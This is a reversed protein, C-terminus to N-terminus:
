PEGSVFDWDRLQSIVRKVTAPCVKLKDSLTAISPLTDPYKGSLINEAIKKAIESYGGAM